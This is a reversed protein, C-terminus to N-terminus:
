ITYEAEHVVAKPSRNVRGRLWKVQSRDNVAIAVVKQVRRAAFLLNLACGEANNVAKLTVPGVKGDAPVGAIDQLWKAAQHPGHLVAADVVFYRLDPDEIGDFGPEVVYKQRYIARVEDIELTAVSAASSTYGRWDSLTKATIGGKTPGGRDGSYDTFEPWGEAKLIGDIILDIKDGM